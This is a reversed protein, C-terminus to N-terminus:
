AAPNAAELDTLAPPEEMSRMLSDIEPAELPRSFYFGQLESCGRERLWGCQEATEIGEACVAMGLMQGLGMMTMIMADSGPERGVTKTFARAIKIKDFKQLYSLSSYGTGFDDIAIRVGLRKLRDLLGCAARTDRLLAAENIELVLREPALGTKELAQQVLSPLEEDLFQAPSLNVSMVIAPWAAARACAERLVFGCLPMIVDTQEALPLFEAPMILGHEPHRWRLLAELGTVIQSEAAIQPQYHLEFEQEAFARWLDAETAKRRWLEADMAPEFFCRTGRHVTKARHLALDAHKLLDDASAGDRPILVVGISVSMVLSQGEIEFPAVLAEILRGCLADAGAPQDSRQQLVAFEDGGIRALLDDAGLLAALREACAKLVRDGLAHGLTDNLESFRDLNLCLLAAQEGNNRARALTQEIRELLLARNALDTLADHTALHRARAQALAAATVDVGTGRHGLLGGVSDHVPVGNIQLHRESADEAAIRFRFESVPRGRVLDARHRVWGEDDILPGGPRWPARARALEVLAAPAGDSVMILRQDADLEWLWESSIAAFDALRREAECRQTQERAVQRRQRLAVVGFTISTVVLLAWLQNLLWGWQAGSWTALLGFIDVFAGIAVTGAALMVGTVVDGRDARRPAKRVPKRERERRLRSQLM